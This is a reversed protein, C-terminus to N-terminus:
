SAGRREASTRHWAHHPRSREAPLKGEQRLWGLVQEEFQDRVTQDIPWATNHMEGGGDRRAPFSLTTRGDLTRRVGLALGISEDVVCSVWGLLGKSQYAQPAPIFRMESIRIEGM